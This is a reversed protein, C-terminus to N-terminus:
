INKGRVNITVNDNGIDIVVNWQKMTDKGCLFPVNAADLIYADMFLKVFGFEEDKSKLTIPVTVIEESVYTKSPGFRFKQHCSKRHLEKKDINNEKLYEDLFKDNLLSKPCGTDFTM